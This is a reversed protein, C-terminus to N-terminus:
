KSHFYYIFLSALDLFIQLFHADGIRHYSFTKPFLRAGM